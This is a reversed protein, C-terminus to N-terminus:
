SAKKEAQENNINKARELDREKTREDVLKELSLTYEKVKQNLNWKTTLALAM